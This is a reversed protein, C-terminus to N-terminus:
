AVSINHFAHVPCARKRNRAAATVCSAGTAGTVCAGAGDTVAAQGSDGRGAGRAGHGVQAGLTAGPGTDGPQPRLAEAPYALAMPISGRLAPAKRRVEHCGVCSRKEGPMLNIFTKMRQLEMFNEDLAQFFVNKEAPVTFFASGDEHVTAIGHVKKIAVDAGM